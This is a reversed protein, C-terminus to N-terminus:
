FCVRGRLFTLWVPKSCPHTFSSQIKIKQHVIGKVIEKQM